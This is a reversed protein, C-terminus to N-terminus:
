MLILLAAAQCGVQNSPNAPCRYSSGFAAIRHTMRRIRQGHYRRAFLNAGVSGRPVAAKSRSKIKIKLAGNFWAPRFEINSRPAFRC